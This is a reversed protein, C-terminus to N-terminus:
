HQRECWRLKITTGFCLPLKRVGGALACCSRVEEDVRAHELVVSIHNAFFEILKEDRTAFANLRTSLATLVGRLQRERAAAVDPTRSPVAGLTKTEHDERAPDGISFWVRAVM